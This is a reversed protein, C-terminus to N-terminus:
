EYYIVREKKNMDRASIVRILKNRVTFVVFLLKESDTRGLLYWRSEKQSHKM